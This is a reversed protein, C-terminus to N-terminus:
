NFQNQQLYSSGDNPEVSKNINIIFDKSKGKAVATDTFRLKILSDNLQYISVSDQDFITQIKGVLKIKNNPSLRKIWMVNPTTAGLDNRTIYEVEIAEGNILQYHIMTIEKETGQGCNGISFLLLISYILYKLM